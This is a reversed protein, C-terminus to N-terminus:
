RLTSAFRAAAAPGRRAKRYTRRLMLGLVMLGVLVYIRFFGASFIFNDIVELVLFGTWVVLYPNRPTGDPGVAGPQLGEGIWRMLRGVLAGYLLAGVAVGVYGFNVYLEGFIPPRLGSHFAPDLGAFQASVRGFGYETRFSSLYAPVFALYGALYTRGWLFDAWVEPKFGSLIWAFERLDSIDGNYLTSSIQRGFSIQDSVSSDRLSKMGIAAILMVAAGGVMAWMRRFRHVQAIIIAITVATLIVTTRTGGILGLLLVFIGIWLILRQKKAFGWLILVIACFPVVAYWFNFIPRLEPQEFVMTRGAFVQFGLLLLLLSSGIAIAGAMRTGAPTFWGRLLIEYITESLVRPRSPLTMTGGHRSKSRSLFMGLLMCLIGFGTILFARDLNDLIAEFSRGTVRINELSLAFPYMLFVKLLFSYGFFWSNFSLVGWRRADYIYFVAFSAVAIVIAIWMWISVKDLPLLAADIANM